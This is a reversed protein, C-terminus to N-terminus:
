GALFGLGLAITVLLWPFPRHDNAVGPIKLAPALAADRISQRRALELTASSVLLLLTDLWLLRIPLKLPQWDRVYTGTLPNYTAFGERFLYAGGMIVFVTVISVLAISIGLRYRRLREGYDPHGDGGGHGGGGGGRISDFPPRGGNGARLRTQTAERYPTATGLPM